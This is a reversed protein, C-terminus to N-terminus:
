KKTVLLGRSILEGVLFHLDAECREASVEYEELLLDLVSQFTRPQQILQWVRAGVENLEFYKGDQLGLIVITGSQDTSLDACVQEESAALVTSRGITDTMHLNSPM